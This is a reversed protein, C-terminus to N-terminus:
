DPLNKLNNLYLSVRTLHYLVHKNKPYLRCLNTLKLYYPLDEEMSLIPRPGFSYNLVILSALSNTHSDIFEKETKKQNVSIGSFLSDATMSVKLFDDSGEHARLINKVSDIGAKNKLTSRFFNELLESDESGTITMKGEPDKLDGKIVLDEGKQIVLTIRKGDPFVLLYFGPQDVAHTFVVNGDKSIVASDLAIAQKVDMECLVIKEGKSNSFQGHITFTNEKPVRTCAFGAYVLFFFLCINKM